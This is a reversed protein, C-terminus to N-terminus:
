EGRQPVTGALTGSRFAAAFAIVAASGSALLTPISAKVIAIVLLQGGLPVAFVALGCALIAHKGVLSGLYPYETLLSSEGRKALRKAHATLLLLYFCLGAHSLSSILGIVLMPIQQGFLSITATSRETVRSILYLEASELTLDQIESLVPIIHSVQVVPLPELREVYGFGTVSIPWEEGSPEEITMELTLRVPLGVNTELWNSEGHWTKQVIKADATIFHPDMPPETIADRISGVKPKWWTIEATSYETALGVWYSTTADNHLRPLEDLRTPATNPLLVSDPEPLGAQPSVLPWAFQSRIQGLTEVLERTKRLEQLAARDQGTGHSILAVLYTAGAVALVLRITGRISRLTEELTNM